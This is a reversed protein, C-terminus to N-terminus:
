KGIEEFALTAVAHARPVRSGELLHGADALLDGANRLCAQILAVLEEDAPVPRTMCGAQCLSTRVAGIVCWPVTARMVVLTPGLPPDHSVNVSTDYGRKSLASM